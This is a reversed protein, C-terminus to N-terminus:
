KININFLERELLNFLEQEKNSGWSSDQLSFAIIGSERCKEKQLENMVNDTVFLAKSGMGGYNKVATRFKDIDTSSAIQTKCEVFLIKTGTNVVVDIENKPYKVSQTDKPPFICNLRIDKAYRWHSLMRAVKYEFWGTHFAMSVAHPSEVEFERMGFRRTYLTLRVFDPREWEVFDNESLSLTGSPQGIKNEWEKSLLTTLKNFHGCNYRRAEVLTDLTEKDEDTYEAFPVYHTLANNQLRFLVDMDFVFDAKREMTRYNWLVNNQDMYVVSANPMSDFVRGFLHSWSKLGSSINLTVEDEKYKEALAKAREMILHPDTTDLPNQEDEAIHIESRVKEVVDRSSESYIFVVKDPQTAVIGHYVPAPQGGVLTIHIKM